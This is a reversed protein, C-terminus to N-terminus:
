CNAGRLKLEIRRNLARGAPSDNSALPRSEGYGEADPVAHPWTGMARALYDAVARARWESLAQNAREDGIADTHGHIEVQVQPHEALVTAVSELARQSVADLSFSGRGFNVGDLVRTQVECRAEALAAQPASGGGSIQRLAATRPMPARRIGIAQASERQCDRGKRLLLEIRNPGAGEAAEGTVHNEGLEGFGIAVPINDFNGTKIMLYDAVAEARREALRHDYAADGYDASYGYVDVLISPDDRLVELVPALADKARAGLRFGAPAFHLDDVARHIATCQEGAGLETGIQATQARPLSWPSSDVADSLREHTAQGCAQGGSFVVDIRRNSARGVETANDALPQEAGYGVAIPANDMRGTAHMLYQAVADARRESLALNGRVTGVNDTHGQVEVQLEPNALMIDVIGGLAARSRDNLFHAGTDFQVETHILDEQDCRAAAAPQATAGGGSLAQAGPEVLALVEPKSEVASLEREKDHAESADAVESPAVREVWEVVDHVGDVDTAAAAAAAARQILAEEVAPSALDVVTDAPGSEVATAQASPAAPESAASKNDCNEGGSVTVEIRRNLKRGQETDNSARPRSEGFGIAEPAHEALGAEFMLFEAVAQARRQSLRRNGTESGSDDTHGAVRIRLDPKERWLTVLPMLARQDDGDLRDDGPPFDLDEVVHAVDGCAGHGRGMREMVQTFSERAFVHEADILAAAVPADASNEHVPAELGDIGALLDQALCLQGGDLKIVIRRNGRRGRETANTYVPKTEGYGLAVPPNKVMGAGGALYAAVAKARRESLEMNDRASGMDDTHGEVVVSLVPDNRLVQVLPDLVNRAHLDLQAEGAEFQIGTAVREISSCSGGAPQFDQGAIDRSTPEAIPDAFATPLDAPAVVSLAQSAPVATEELTQPTSMAATTTGAELAAVSEEARPEATAEAAAAVPPEATQAAPQAVPKELPEDARAVEPRPQPKVRGLPAPPSFISAGDAAVPLHCHRGGTIAIEIRRNRARGTESGNSAIPYAEGLGLVQPPFSLSPAQQLLYDAVSQARLASLQQNDGRSGVSDTHGKVQVRLTSDSRLAAVIPTLSQRSPGDLVHEGVGFRVGKVVHDIQQCAALEGRYQARVKAEPITEPPKATLAASRVPAATVSKDEIQMLSAMEDECGDGARLNLEIRRNRARGVASDNSAIPSSEGMGIARPPNNFRGTAIALYNAVVLARKQSLLQNKNANGRSDTYGRVTVRINPGRKLARAVKDLQRKSAESLQASGSAFSVGRLERDVSRCIGGGKDSSASAGAAGGQGTAPGTTQSAADKAGPDAGPKAAPPKAPEVPERTDIDASASRAGSAGGFRSALSLFAFGAEQGYSEVGLRGELRDGMRWQLGAGLLAGVETEDEFEIRTDDSDRQLLAAGGRLYFNLKSSPKRLLYDISITAAKHEIESVQAGNRVEAVGADTYGLEWRWRPKFAKGFFVKGGNSQDGDPEFAFGVGFDEPELRSVGGALGAYYKNYASGGGSLTQLQKTISQADQENLNLQAAAPSALAGAFLAASLCRWAKLLAQPRAKIPTQRPTARPSPTDPKGVTQPRSRRKLAALRAHPLCRHLTEVRKVKRRQRQTPQPATSAPRGLRRVPESTSNTLRM